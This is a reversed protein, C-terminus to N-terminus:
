FIRKNLITKIRGHTSLYHLTEFVIAVVGVFFGVPGTVGTLVMYLLNKIKFVRQTQIRFKAPVNRAIEEVARAARILWYGAIGLVMWTIFLQM